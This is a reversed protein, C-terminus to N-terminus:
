SPLQPKFIALCVHVHLHPMQDVCSYRTYISLLLDTHKDLGWTRCVLISGSHTSWLICIVVFTCNMTGDVVPFFVSLLFFLSLILVHIYTFTGTYVTQTCTYQTLVCTDCAIGVSYLKLKCELQKPWTVVRLDHNSCWAREVSGGTVPTHNLHVPVVGVTLSSVACFWM